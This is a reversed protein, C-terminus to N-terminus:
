EVDDIGPNNETTVEETIQEETSESTDEVSAILNNDLKTFDDDSIFYNNEDTQITVITSTADLYSINPIADNLIDIIGQAFAVEYEEIEYEDFEGAEKKENFSQIYAIVDDYTTQLIDMPYVLVEVTYTDGSKIATQAEYKAAAYINKTLEIFENKITGDDVLEIGYYAILADALYAIGEDYAAQVAEEDSDTLDIFTEFQGKYNADLLSTVYSAYKKNKSEFVSCGTLQFLMIITLVFISLKKFYGKM